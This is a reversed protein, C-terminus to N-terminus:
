QSSKIFAIRARDAAPVNDIWKECFPNLTLLQAAQARATPTLSEWAIAAVEMHGLGNWALVPRAVGVCIAILAFMRFIM